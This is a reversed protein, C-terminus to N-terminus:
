RRSLVLSRVLIPNIDALLAAKNQEVAQLCLTMVKFYQPQSLYADESNIIFSFM